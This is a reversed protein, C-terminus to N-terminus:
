DGGARHAVRRDGRVAWATFSEVARVSGVATMLKTVREADVCGEAFELFESMSHSLQNWRDLGHPDVVASGFETRDNRMGTRRDGIATSM